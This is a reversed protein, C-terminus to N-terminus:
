APEKRARARGDRIFDLVQSAHVKVVEADAEPDDANYRALALGAVLTAFVAYCTLDDDNFDDLIGDLQRLCSMALTTVVAQELRLRAKDGITSTAKKRRSRSPKPFPIPTAM